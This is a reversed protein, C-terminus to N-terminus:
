YRLGKLSRGARFSVTRSEPVAKAQGKPAKVRRKAWGRPRFSGFGRLEVCHGKQLASVLEDLFANLVIRVPEAKVDLAEAARRCLERKHVTVKAAKNRKIVWKPKPM